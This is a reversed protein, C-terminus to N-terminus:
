FALNNLIRDVGSCPFESALRGDPLLVLSQNQVVWSLNLDSLPGRGVGAWSPTWTGQLQM